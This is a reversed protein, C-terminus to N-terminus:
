DRSWIVGAMKEGIYDKDHKGMVVWSVAARVEM